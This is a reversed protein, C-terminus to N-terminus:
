THSHTNYDRSLPLHDHGPAALGAPVTVDEFTGNRRNRYLHNTPEAGPPFGELTSGNVFFLDIWGDEDYDLMAVGTGTTEVLYTNKERGGFVISMDLRAERAINTVNFPASAPLRFGSATLLLAVAFAVTGGRFGPVPAITDDAANAAESSEDDDCRRLRHGGCLGRRRPRFIEVLARELQLPAAVRGGRQRQQPLGGAERGAVAGNLVMEAARQFTDAREAGRDVRMARRGVGTERRGPGRVMEDERQHLRSTRGFRDVARARRRGLRRAIGLAPERESE